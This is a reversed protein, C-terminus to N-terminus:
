VISYSGHETECTPCCTRPKVCCTAPCHACVLVCLGLPDLELAMISDPGLVTGYMTKPARMGYHCELQVRQFHFSCGTAPKELSWVKVAVPLRSPVICSWALVRWSGQILVTYRGHHGKLSNKPPERGNQM